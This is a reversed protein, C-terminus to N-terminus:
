ITKFNLLQQVKSKEITFGAANRHGGGKVAIGAKVLKACFDGVDINKGFQDSRLSFTFATETELAKMFAVDFGFEKVLISGTMSINRGSFDGPILGFLTGPPTKFNPMALVQVDKCYLRAKQVEIETLKKGISLKEELPILLFRAKLQAFIDFSNYRPEKYMERLEKNDRMFQKFWMALHSAEHDHKGDHLWLDHTRVLDVTRKIDYSSKSGNRSVTLYSELFRFFEMDKYALNFTMSAGCEKIGPSAARNDSLFARYEGGALYDKEVLKSFFHSGVDRCDCSYSINHHAQSGVKGFQAKYLEKIQTEHHDVITVNAGRKRLKQIEEPDLCFDVMIVEDHVNANPLKGDNYNVPMMRINPMGDYIAKTHAVMGAVFGDLCNDHYMIITRRTTKVSAM